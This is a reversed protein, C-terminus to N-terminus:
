DKAKADRKPDAWLKSVMQVTWPKLSWDRLSTKQWEGAPPKSFLGAGKMDLHLEKQM